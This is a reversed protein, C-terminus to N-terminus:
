ASAMIANVYEDAPRIGTWRQVEEGDRLLVCTPISSIQFKLALEQSDDINIKGVTAKGATESAVQEITPMLMKCPACWEAWFDILVLKERSTELIVQQFNEVTLDVINNSMM